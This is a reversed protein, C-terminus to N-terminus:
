SQLADNGGDLAGVGNSVGPLQSRGHSFVLDNDDIDGASSVLVTCGDCAVSPLIKMLLMLFANSPPLAKMGNMVQPSGDSSIM